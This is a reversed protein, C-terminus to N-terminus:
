SEVGVAKKGEKRRIVENHYRIGKGKYPEPKRLARIEAAFQGVREKDIGSITIENKEVKVEISEPVPIEINHSFGLAFKLKDGSMEVKFGIGEVVLKKQYLENVGRIMNRLHSAYTGWLAHSIPDSRRPKLEIERGKVSIEVEDRFERKLEGKPGKVTFVNDSRTVEINEPIEIPKKGLRSM